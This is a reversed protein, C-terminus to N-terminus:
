RTEKLLTPAMEVVPVIVTVSVKFLTNVNTLPVPVFQVHVATKCTTVHVFGPGIALPAAVPSMVSVTAILLVAEPLMPLEAFTESGPSKSMDSLLECDNTFMTGDACDITTAILLGLLVCNVTPVPATTFKRAVIV